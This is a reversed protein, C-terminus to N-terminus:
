ATIRPQYETEHKLLSFAVRALKRALAVLAQIRSKGRSLLREYYPKWAPQRCAQMAALYLLRRLEPNGKKTLKRVGRLKGSDRVRVDLGMFAVFADSHAFEGRQFTATLAAATIPGIGEVAELRQAAALWGHQALAQRLRKQILQDLHKLARLVAQASRKLEPLVKFSQRLAVQTQVLTARRRLLSQLTAYGKPPPTYPRLEDREKHLYRALLQADSADTKARGGTGERYHKLRYGDVLYVTLRLKYAEDLFTLHYTNTAELAICSGQPLGKLYARIASRTNELSRTGKVGHHCIELEDKSVDVGVLVPEVRMAM